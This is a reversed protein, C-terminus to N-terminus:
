LVLREHDPRMLLEAGGRGLLVTAQAASRAFAVAVQHDLQSTAENGEDV